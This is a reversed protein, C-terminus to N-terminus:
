TTTKLVNKFFNNIKPYPALNELARFNGDVAIGEAATMFGQWAARALSSGVSIRRVGLAAIDKITLGTNRTVILNFPKPGVAAVLAEIQEPLVVGPSFLVDAGADAYAKLRRLSEPFPDAHGTLYCEARATLLVGTGSADIAARAASLRDLAEALEFLPRAPDGTADEISLGAVGTAVCKTVNEAVGRADPAYGAEFDANVPLDTANVMELIHELVQAVPVHGGDPLGRSFAFGGSTTALAPFGLHKLYLATGRDWPNPIVFCGQRHLERFRSIKM